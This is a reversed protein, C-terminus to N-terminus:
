WWRWRRYHQLRFSPALCTLVFVIDGQLNRGAIWVTINASVLGTIAQLVISLLVLPNYGTFVGHHVIEVSDQTLAVSQVPLLSPHAILM